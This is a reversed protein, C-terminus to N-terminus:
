DDSGDDGGGSGDDGGGGGESEISVHAEGSECTAKVVTRRGDAEFEVRVKSGGDSSGTRVSWGTAPQAFRLSMAGGTCRFGAQGGTVTVVKDVAVAAPPESSTAPPPTAPPSTPPTTPPPPPPTTTPPPTTAPVAPDSPDAALDAGPTTVQQAAPDLVESGARGIAFWAVASAIVVVGLWVAVAVVVTHRWRHRASGDATDVM